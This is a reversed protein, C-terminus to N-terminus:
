KIEGFGSRNVSRLPAFAASVATMETRLTRRTEATNKMTSNHNDSRRTPKDKM